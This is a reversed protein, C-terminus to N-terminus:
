GDPARRGEKAVIADKRCEVDGYRRVMDACTKLSILRAPSNGPQSAALAVRCGVAASIRCNITDSQWACLLTSMTLQINTSHNLPKGLDAFNVSM